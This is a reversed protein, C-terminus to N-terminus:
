KKKDAGFPLRDKVALGVLVNALPMLTASIAMTLVRHDKSARLLDISRQFM